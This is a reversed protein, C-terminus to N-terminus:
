PLHAIRGIDPRMAIFQSARFLGRQADHAGIHDIRRTVLIANARRMDLVADAREPRGHAGVKDFLWGFGVDALPHDSGHITIVAIVLGDDVGADLFKAVLRLAAQGARQGLILELRKPQHVAEIELQVGIHQADGDGIARQRALLHALQALNRAFIVLAVAVEGRALIQLIVPDLQGIRRVDKGFQRRHLHVGDLSAAIADAIDTGILIRANGGIFDRVGAGPGFQQALPRAEVRFEGIQRALELNRHDRRVIIARRHPQMVDPQFQDLAIAHDARFDIGAAAHPPRWHNGRKDPVEHGFILNNRIQFGAQADIIAITAAVVLVLRPDLDQDMFDADLLILPLDLFFKRMHARQAEIRRDLFQRADAVKKGRGSIFAAQGVLDVPAVPSERQPDVPLDRGVLRGAIGDDVDAQLRNVADGAIRRRLLHRQDGIQGLCIGEIFQADGMRLIQHQRMHPLRVQTGDPLLQNRRAQCLGIQVQDGVDDGARAQVIARQGIRPRNGQRLLDRGAEGSRIPLRLNAFQLEFNGAADIGAAMMMGPM